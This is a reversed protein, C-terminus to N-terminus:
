IDMKNKKPTENGKPSTRGFIVPLLVLLASRPSLFIVIVIGYAVPDSVEREDKEERLGREGTWEKSKVRKAVM